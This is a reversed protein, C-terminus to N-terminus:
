RKHSIILEHDTLLINLNKTEWFHGEESQAGASGTENAMLTYIPPRHEPKFILDVGSFLQDHFNLFISLLPIGAVNMALNGKGEMFMASAQGSAYINNLAKKSLGLDPLRDKHTKWAIGRFGYEFRCDAVAVGALLFFCVITMRITSQWQTHRM